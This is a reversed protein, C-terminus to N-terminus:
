LMSDSRPPCQLQQMHAEFEEDRQVGADDQVAPAAASDGGAGAAGSGVGGGAQAKAVADLYKRVGREKLNGQWPDGMVHATRLVPSKTHAASGDQGTHAANQLRQVGWVCAACAYDAKSLVGCVRLALARPVCFPSCANQQPHHHSRPAPASFLTVACIRSCM